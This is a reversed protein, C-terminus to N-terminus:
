HILCRALLWSLHNQPHAAWLDLILLSDAVLMHSPLIPTASLPNQGKLLCTLYLTMQPFSSSFHGGDQVLEWSSNVGVGSVTHRGLTGVNGPHCGGVAM